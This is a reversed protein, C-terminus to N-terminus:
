RLKSWPHEDSSHNLVLDIILKINHHHLAELLADFDHMDGFDPHIDTYDCIDYGGDDNPSPFFPKLWMGDVGLSAIYDVKELVGRLDGVGNGNSDKFSRPHIQYIVADKWWPQHRIPSIDEL